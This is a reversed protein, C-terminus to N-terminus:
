FIYITYTHSATPQRRSNPLYSYSESIVQRSHLRLPPQFHSADVRHGTHTSHSSKQPVYFRNKYPQQLLTPRDLSELKVKSVSRSPFCLIWNQMVKYFGKVLRRVDHVLFCTTQTMLITIIFLNLDWMVCLICIMDTNIWSSEPVAWNWTYRNISEAEDSLVM